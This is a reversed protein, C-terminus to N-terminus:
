WVAMKKNSHIKQTYTRINRFSESFTSSPEELFGQLIHYGKKMTDVTPVTAFVSVDMGEFSQLNKLTSNNIEKYLIMFYLLAFSLIWSISVNLAINPSVPKLSLSAPAIVKTNLIQLKKAENTEKARQLFTDYLNSSSDVERKFIRM